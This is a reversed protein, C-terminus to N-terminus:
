ILRDSEKSPGLFTGPRNAAWTLRVRTAGIVGGPVSDKSVWPLHPPPPPPRVCPGPKAMGGRM